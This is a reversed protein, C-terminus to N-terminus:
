HNAGHQRRPQQKQLCFVAYSTRMLSQLESTHEESRRAPPDEWGDVDWVDPGTTSSRGPRFGRGGSVVSVIGGGARIRRLILARFPARTPPLLLLIALCDSSCGPSIM